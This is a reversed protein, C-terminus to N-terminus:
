EGEDDRRTRSPRLNISIAALMCVTCFLWRWWRWWLVCERETLVTVQATILACIGYFKALRYRYFVKEEVEVVVVVVVAAATTLKEDKELL